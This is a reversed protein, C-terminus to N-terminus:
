PVGVTRLVVALRKRMCDPDFERALQVADRRRAEQVALSDGEWAGIRDALRVPYTKDVTGEYQLTWGLPGLLIAAEGVHTAIVPTGCALYLPLKGTTRVAGVADNSQTSLAADMAGIYGAAMGPSIRGVFRCRDAVGLDDARSKLRALGDGDGVILGVVRDPLLALAEVLDWGYCVGLRPSYNLSGVLGVVFADGLDLMERTGRRGGTILEEPPMDPIFTSPKPAVHDAHRRGRVVVHHACSLAVREGAWVSAMGVVSRGGVSRALAYALDGTDLVVCGGRMRAVVAAVATSQGVDVLYTVDAHSTAVAHAARLMGHPGPGSHVVVADAENALLQRARNAASESHAIALVRSRAPRRRVAHWAEVRGRACAQVEDLAFRQDLLCLRGLQMLGPLGRSGCALAWIMFARRRAPSAHSLIALAENFGAVRVANLDTWIREAGTSRAAPEHDVAVAPDYLVRWGRRRVGLTAGLETAHETGVRKLREDFGVPALALRRYSMNAGKLIEVERPPGVGLHHNGVMRGFWSMRGVVSTEGRDVNGDYHIWDRGGLAGLASDQAFHCEIRQIWDDHPRADDDTFAVVHGTSKALGTNLAHVLGPKTVNEVRLNGHRGVGSLLTQTDTDDARAVIIIEDPQRHQAALAKLCLPLVGSRWASPVVM